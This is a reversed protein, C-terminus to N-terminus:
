LERTRRLLAGIMSRLKGVRWLRSRDLRVGAAAHEQLSGPVSHRFGLRLLLADDALRLQDDRLLAVAGRAGDVEEEALLARAELRVALPRLSRLACPSPACARRRCRTRCRSEASAPATDRRCRMSCARRPARAPSPARRGRLCSTAERQTRSARREGPRRRCRPCRVSATLFRRTRN